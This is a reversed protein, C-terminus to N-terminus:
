APRPGRAYRAPITPGSRAPRAPWARSNGHRPCSRGVNRARDRRGRHRRSAPRRAASTHGRCTQTLHHHRVGFKLHGAVEGEQAARRVWFFQHHAGLFQTQGGDRDGVAVAQGAHHACVRRGLFVPEFKDDAAPEVQRVARRQETIRGVPRGIAPKAAQQAQALCARGLAFTMQRQLIDRTMGTPWIKTTTGGSFQDWSSKIARTRSM